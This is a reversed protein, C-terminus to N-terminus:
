PIKVSSGHSNVANYGFCSDNETKTWFEFCM